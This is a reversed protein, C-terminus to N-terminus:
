KPLRPLPEFGMVPEDDRERRFGGPIDGLDWSRPPSIRTEGPDTASTRSTSRTRAPPLKHGHPHRGLPRGPQFPNQFPYLLGLDEIPRLVLLPTKIRISLHGENLFRPSYKSEPANVHGRLDIVSDRGSSKNKMIKLHLVIDHRIFKQDIEPTGADTGVADPRDAGGDQDHQDDGKDSAPGLGEEARRQDHAPVAHPRARDGRM